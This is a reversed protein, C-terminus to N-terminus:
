GLLDAIYDRDFGCLMAICKLADEFTGTYATNEGDNAVITERNGNADDGVVVLVLWRDPEDEAFLVIDGREDGVTRGKVLWADNVWDASPGVKRYGRQYRLINSRFREICPACATTRGNDDTESECTPCEMNYALVSM